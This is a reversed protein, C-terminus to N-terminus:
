LSEVVCCGIRFHHVLGWGGTSVVSGKPNFRCVGSPFSLVRVCRPIVSSRERALPLSVRDYVLATIVARIALCRLHTASPVKLELYVCLAYQCTTYDTLWSKWATIIKLPSYNSSILPQWVSLLSCAFSLDSGGLSLSARVRANFQDSQIQKIIDKCRTWGPPLHIDIFILM